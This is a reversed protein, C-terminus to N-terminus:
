MNNDGPIMSMKQLIRPLRLIHLVVCVLPAPCYELHDEYSHTSWTLSFHLGMSLTVLSPPRNYFFIRHRHLDTNSSWVRWFNHIILTELPKYSKFTKPM